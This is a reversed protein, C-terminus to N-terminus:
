GAGRDDLGFLGSSWRDWRVGWFRCLGGTGQGSHREAARARRPRRLSSLRAGQDGRRSPPTRELGRRILTVPTKAGLTRERWLAIILRAGRAPLNLLPSNRRAKETDLGLKENLYCLRIPELDFARQDCSRGRDDGPGDANRRSPWRGVLHRCIDAGAQRRDALRGCGRGRCTKVKGCSACRSLHRSVPREKTM